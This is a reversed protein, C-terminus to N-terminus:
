LMHVFLGSRPKPEFWTSKPPMLRGADAVAFLEEMSCPFLAFAVGGAADARRELEELGRVGGVYAIRESSRPDDIALVPGLLRDQLISVDLCGVADAPRTGAPVRLRHWSGQLYMGLEGRESPQSLAEPTTLLEFSSAALALLEDKSHGNLDFVVRNYDLVQLEESSFLAALFHSASGSCAAGQGALGCGLQEAVLAAAAARHHGDAIYLAGADAFGSMISQECAPKDVRWVTHRVGDPAVFDYLPLSEDVTQAIASTIAAHPRHELLVPGTHAGLATIHEFRDRCKHERTNEHRKVLGANYDAVSVCAVVGTQQRLGKTLRYLYYHPRGDPEDAIVGADKDADLLSKALGYVRQDYEGVDSPLLATTKDIRLFSRPHAAIEAAAEKRSYVDYPLAAYEAAYEACPRM